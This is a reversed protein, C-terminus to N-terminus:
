NSTTGDKAAVVAVLRKRYSSILRQCQQPPIRALEEKCFQKLTAVNSLKGAYVARKLDQWLM